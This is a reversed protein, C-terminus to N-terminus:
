RPVFFHGGLGVTFLSLGYLAHELALIYMAGPRLRARRYTAALLLGGVTSAAVAFWGAFVIHVWGFALASVCLPALPRTWLAKHAEFVYVRYILEQPVVSLLPYGLLLLLWLGPRQRPLAFLNEPELLLAYVLACACVVAGRRLPAHWWGAPPPGFVGSWVVHGSVRWVAYACGGLLLLHRFTYGAGTLALLPVLGLFMSLELAALTHKM